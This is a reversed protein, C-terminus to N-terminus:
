TELRRIMAKTLKFCFVTGFFPHRGHSKEEDRLSKADDPRLECSDGNSEIFQMKEPRDYGENLILSRPKLSEDPVM